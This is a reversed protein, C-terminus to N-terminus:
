PSSVCRFGTEKGRNEPTDYDRDISRLYFRVNLASGGRVVKYFGDKPGAPNKAPSHKYYFPDYWDAVWEAVNGAMDLVGYPSAGAKNSGVPQYTQGREWRKLYPINIAEPPQNGWPYIREDVGRAAKEWEAETPLRKGAWKCYAAADTWAVNIVPYDAIEAPPGDKTWLDYEPDNRHSPIPQDTAEVFKHYQANTVEHKDIYFADLYVKHAPREDNFYGQDSGMTFEGAPVLVMLSGDKEGVKTAPLDGGASLAPHFLWVATLWGLCSLWVWSTRKRQGQISM